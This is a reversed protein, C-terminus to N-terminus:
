TQGFLPIEITTFLYIKFLEQTSLTNVLRSDLTLLPANMRQSLAIYCADYASISYNLSVQMAESILSKTPTADLPFARIRDLALTAQEASFQNARVYKWLVNTFEIYFLDPIFFQTQPNQLHLFLAEAKASLPDPIFLKIAINTDIVYRLSSSM